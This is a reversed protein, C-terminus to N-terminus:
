SWKKVTDLFCHYLLTPLNAKYILYYPTLEGGFGRYFKEIQEHMSGEFDFIECKKSAFEIMCDILMSNGGFQRYAPDTGNLILNASRRDYVIAAVSHINGERDKVSKMCLCKQESLRNLLNVLRKKSYPQRGGKGKYTKENVEAFAAADVDDIVLEAKRAARLPSKVKEGYNARFDPMKSFDIQYTYRTTQKYGSWYFNLWNKFNPHFSYSWIRGGINSIIERDIKYRLDQGKGSKEVDVAYLVGLHKVFLPNSLVGAENKALIIGGIVEGNEEVVSIKFPYGVSKLYFSKSYIGGQPSLDVFEDWRPYDCEELIRYNM